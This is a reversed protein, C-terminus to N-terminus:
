DRGALLAVTSEDLKRAALAAFAVQEDTKCLVVPVLRKNSSRAYDIELQCVPSAMSNPSIVFVFNDAQDIGRCIERWWDSTPPIDEWDIWTDRQLRELESHLSRVFAQDIRSYSIFVQSM